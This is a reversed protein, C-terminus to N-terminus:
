LKNCLENFCGSRWIIGILNNVPFSYKIGNVVHIDEIEKHNFDNRFMMCIVHSYSYPKQEVSSYIIFHLAWFSHKCKLQWICIKAITPWFKLFIKIDSHKIIFANSKKIMVVFNSWLKKKWFSIHRETFYVHLCTVYFMFSLECVASHQICM